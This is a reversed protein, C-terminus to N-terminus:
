PVAFGRVREIYDMLGPAQRVMDATRRTRLLFSLQGYLAFDCLWPRDGLLFPADVLLASAQSLHRQMATEADAPTRGRSSRGQLHLGHRWRYAAATLRGLLGRGFLATMNATLRSTLRSTLRRTLRGARCKDQWRLHLSDFHLTEDAWAELAHCLARARPAGPILQPHPYLRDLEWAIASSDAVFRGDIEVAPVVGHGRKRLAQWQGPALPDQAEFAM